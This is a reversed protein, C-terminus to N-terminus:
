QYAKSLTYRFYAALLFVILLNIALAQYYYTRYRKRLPETACFIQILYYSAVLQVPLCLLGIIAARVARVTAQETETPEPELDDAEIDDSDIVDPDYHGESEYDQDDEEGSRKAADADYNSEDVEDLIAEGSHDALIQKARDVDAAQVQLKIGGFTIAAYWVASVLADDVLFAQIGEQALQNKALNATTSNEFRAITKLQIKM